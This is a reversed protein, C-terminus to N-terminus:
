KQQDLWRIAGDLDEFIGDLQAEFAEKLRAGMPRGPQVGRALLHRGLLLPKPGETAVKLREAVQRLAGVRKPEGESGPPRGSADATMVVGLDDISSPELRSALRRVLRETPEEVYMGHNLVLPEIRERLESPCGIRQLFRGALPGGASEHGTSVIRLVGARREERTCSPKGIDHLLVALMLVTRRAVDSLQWAKASVLADVCHNTHVWVDGEPHWVPDQPVGVLAALEPLTELWCCEKLFRLGLSPKASRTAWKVWEERIREVPLESYTGVMSRALDLTESTATLGFRGCFQMGRLVRLPDEIFAPGTHRLIRDALDRAGQHHDILERRRPDWLMSNITYDRRASAEFTTLEPELTIDFGRHGISAKSDRRPLSFDWTEGSPHRLKVVGFSRGVLDARGYRSLGLVLTEYSVGYVEIDLDNVPIGLLADRVCGGVLYSRALLPDERLIFALAASLPLDM